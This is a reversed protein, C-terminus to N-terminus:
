YSKLYKLLEEKPDVATFRGSAAYYGRAGYDYMDYGHMQIFEKGNYKYPQESPYSGEAWPLGSPYYQTRQITRNRNALWVERINGLHDKRYYTYYAM